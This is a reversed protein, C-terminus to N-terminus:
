QPQTEIAGAEEAPRVTGDHHWLFITHPRMRVTQDPTWSGMSFDHSVIRAGPRLEATLKPLLELNSASLLYLTVVTAESLDADRIDREIFTVLDQVRSIEANAEAQAIRLPDYDIGIGRAGRKAAAIVIRGDGSGLDVVVDNEDVDALNLMCDVVEHPSPWFPALSGTHNEHDRRALDRPADELYDDHSCLAIDTSTARPAECGMTGLLALAVLWKSFPSDQSMVETPTM